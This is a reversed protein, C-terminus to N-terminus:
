IYTYHKQWEKLFLDTLGDFKELYYIYIYKQYIDNNRLKEFFTKNPPPAQVQPLLKYGNGGFFFQIYM